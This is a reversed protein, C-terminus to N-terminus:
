NATKLLEKVTGAELLIDHIQAKIKIGRNLCKICPKFCVYIRSKLTTTLLYLLM